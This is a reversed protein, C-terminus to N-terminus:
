LAAYKRACANVDFLVALFWAALIFWDDAGFQGKVLKWRIWFRVACILTVFALFTYCIGRISSVRSGHPLNPDTAAGSPFPSSM